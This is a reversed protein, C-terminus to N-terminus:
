EVTLFIKRSGRDIKLVKVNIVESNEFKLKHKEAESTHILGTTEEDLQVLIGFPKTEKVKGAITVGVKITDWVTERLIQTLIIRGQTIEKIYFEIPTGPKIDQIKDAYEAIVNGSHILGTLCENFEVFIGFKATGTVTGTYVEGYKLEKTAEPILTELYKKRSVVFTGELDSYSEIIVDMTTGVISSPDSLKNVGALKAPLFGPLTVKGHQLEIEYGAAGLTKVYGTIPKGTLTKLNEHARSEYLTSVSGKIYFNTNNVDTLLVDLIDGVELSSLYKHENGRKDIRIDDKFGDFTFVYHDTNENKFTASVVNGKVPQKVNDLNYLKSLERREQTEVWNTAKNKKRRSLYGTEIFLHDLEANGITNM